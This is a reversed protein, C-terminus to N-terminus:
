EYFEDSCRHLTVILVNCGFVFPFIDSKDNVTEQHVSVTRGSDNAREIKEPGNTRVFNSQSIRLSINLSHQSLLGVFSRM